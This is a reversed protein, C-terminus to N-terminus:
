IRMATSRWSSFSTMPPIAVIRETITVPEAAAM